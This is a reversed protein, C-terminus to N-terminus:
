IYINMERYTNKEAVIFTTNKKMETDMQVSHSAKSINKMKLHIQTDTHTHTNDDVNKWSSM